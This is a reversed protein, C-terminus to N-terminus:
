WNARGAALIEVMQAVRAERQAPGPMEGGQVVHQYWGRLMFVFCEAVVGPARCPVGDVESCHSIFDTVQSIYINFSDLLPTAVEPFEGASSIILRNIELMDGELGFALLHKGYEILGLVLDPSASVDCSLEEAALTAKQAIIACFLAAKTPFRSVLTTRSLNAAQAIGRMSAGGYGCRMFESLAAAVLQSDISAIDASRPRGRPRPPPAVFKNEIDRIM